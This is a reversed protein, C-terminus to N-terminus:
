QVCGIVSVPFHPRGPQDPHAASRRCQGEEDKREIRGIVSIPYHTVRPVHCPWRPRSGLHCTHRGNKGRGLKGAESDDQDAAFSRASGAKQSKRNGLDAFHNMKGGAVASLWIPFHPRGPQDPNGASRRCQGEEDKREIRGIVSVPSHPRGPQDPHAASPRGQGEEGKRVNGGIVSAPYHAVRPCTTTTGRKATAGVGDAIMRLTTASRGKQPGRNKEPLVWVRWSARRRTPFRSDRFSSGAKPSQRHKAVPRRESAM